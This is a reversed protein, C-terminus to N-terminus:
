KDKKLKKLLYIFHFLVYTTTLLDFFIIFVLYIYFPFRYSDYYKKDIAQTFNILRRIKRLYTTVYILLGPFLFRIDLLILFPFILSYVSIMWLLLFKILNTISKSKISKYLYNENWILRQHFYKKLNASYDVFIRHRYDVLRYTKYGKSSIDRGMSKDTPELKQVTFKGIDKLVNNSIVFNQGTIVEGYTYRNFKKVLTKFRDFLLYKTLLKTTQNKLPRVGGIVVDENLNIIPYIMRLLIENNLYSDADIIYIIGENIHNLCKNIAKIKGLSPRDSGGKQHLIVYNEYDKFYNAIKITEENGGANTIVRIKPYNLKMISFLLEKYIAGEKWAPIIINVLPLFKFDSILIEEPDKYKRFDKVKKNYLIILLTNYIINLFIYILFFIIIYKLSIIEALINLFKYLFM